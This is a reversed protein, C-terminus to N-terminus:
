FLRLLRFGPVRVKIAETQVRVEFKLSSLVVCMCHAETQSPLSGLSFDCIFAQSDEFGSVKTQVLVPAPLFFVVVPHNRSM